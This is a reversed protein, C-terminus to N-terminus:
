WGLLAYSFCWVLGLKMGFNLDWIWFEFRLNRLAMLSLSLRLLQWLCSSGLSVLNSFIYTIDQNRYQFLFLINPSFQSFKFSTHVKIVTYWYQKMVQSLSVTNTHSTLLGAFQIGLVNRYSRWLKEVFRFDDLIFLQNLFFKKLYRETGSDCPFWRGTYSSEHNVSSLDWPCAQWREQGLSSRSVLLSQKFTM